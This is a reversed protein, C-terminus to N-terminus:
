NCTDESSSHSGDSNYLYSDMLDQPDSSSSSGGIYGMGQVLYNEYEDDVDNEEVSDILVVDTSSFIFSSRPVISSATRNGDKRLTRGKWDFDNGIDISGFRVKKKM